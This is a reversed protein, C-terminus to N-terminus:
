FLSADCRRPAPEEMGAPTTKAGARSRGRKLRQMLDGVSSRSGGGALTTQEGQKANGKLHTGVAKKGPGRGSHRVARDLRRNGGATGSWEVAHAFTSVARVQFVLAMHAESRITKCARAGHSAAAPATRLQLCRCCALATAAAAHMQGHTTIASDPLNLKALAPQM